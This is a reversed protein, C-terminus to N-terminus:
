HNVTRELRKCIGVSPAHEGQKAIPIEGGSVNGRVEVHRKRGDRVV